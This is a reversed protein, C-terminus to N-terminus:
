GANISKVFIDLVQNTFVVADFLIPWICFVLSYYYQGIHDICITKYDICQVDFQVYNTSNSCCFTKIIGVLSDEGPIETGINRAQRAM